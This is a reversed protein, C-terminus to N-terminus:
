ATALQVGQSEDTIAEREPWRTAAICRRLDVLAAEPVHIRFPRLFQAQSTYQRKQAQSMTQARTAGVARPLVPRGLALSVSRSLAWFDAAILAQIRESTAEEPPHNVFLLGPRVCPAQRGYGM